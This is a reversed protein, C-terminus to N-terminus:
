VIDSDPKLERCDTSGHKRLRLRAADTMFNGGIPKQFANM